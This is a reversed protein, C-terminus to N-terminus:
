RHRPRLRTPRNVTVATRRMSHTASRASCLSIGHNNIREDHFKYAPKQWRRVGARERQPLDKGARSTHSRNESVAAHTDQQPNGSSVSPVILADLAVSLPVSLSM